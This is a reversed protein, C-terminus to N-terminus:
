DKWFGYTDLDSLVHDVTNVMDGGRRVTGNGFVSVLYDRVQERTCGANKLAVVHDRSFAEAPKKGDLESNIVAAALAPTWKVPTM